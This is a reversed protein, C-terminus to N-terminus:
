YQEYKHEDLGSPLRSKSQCGNLLIDYYENKQETNSNDWKLFQSIKENMNVQHNSTLIDSRSLDIDDSVVTLCTDQSISKGLTKWYIENTKLPFELGSMNKVVWPSKKGDFRYMTEDFNELKTKDPTMVLIENFEMAKIGCEKNNNNMNPKSSNDHQREM